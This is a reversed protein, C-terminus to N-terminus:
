EHHYPEGRIITCARYVQETFILRVMQHSFTMPSLSLQEDARQYVAPSFGYPGGIVFVLRRATHQKQQLWRAFEISRPQRGHEDLLVVSDGPQLQKLILEGELQKQQAETLSKTSKLEPITVVDFPMYHGIRGVYDDIAAQFHKNVTKGVQLLVTKM